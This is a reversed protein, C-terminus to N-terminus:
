RGGRDYPDTAQPIEPEKAPTRTLHALLVPMWVSPEANALLILNLTVDSNTSGRKLAANIKNIIRKRVGVKM